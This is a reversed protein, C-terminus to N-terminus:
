SAHGPFVIQQTGHYEPATETGCSLVSHCHAECEAPHRATPDTVTTFSITNQRSFIGTVEIRQRKQQQQEVAWLQKHLQKKKAAIQQRLGEVGFRSYSSEELRDQQRLIRLEQIADYDDKDMDISNNEGEVDISSSAQTSFRRQQDNVAPNLAIKPCGKICELLQVRCLSFPIPYQWNHITNSIGATCVCNWELTETNCDNTQVNNQCSAACMAAQNSCLTKRMFTDVKTPHSGAFASDVITTMGTLSTSISLGLTVLLLLQLTSSSTNKKPIWMNIM